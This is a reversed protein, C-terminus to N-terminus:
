CATAIEVETGSVGELRGEAWDKDHCDGPRFFVLVLLLFFGRGGEGDSISDAGGGICDEGVVVVVGASGVVFSVESADGSGELGDVGRM